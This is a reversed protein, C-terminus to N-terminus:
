ITFIFYSFLMIGVIALIIKSYQIFRAELLSMEEADKTTKYGM